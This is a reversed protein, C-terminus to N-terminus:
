RVPLGKIRECCNLPSSTWNYIYAPRIEQEQSCLTGNKVLNTYKTYFSRVKMKHTILYGNNCGHSLSEVDFRIDHKRTLQFPALWSAVTVDENAYLTLRHPFMMLLRVTQRSLVYGGGMAYPLYHPCQFWRHEAWKGALEPFAHGMFYGWYLTKPCRMDKLANAIGEIRVYSDDDVKVLYDFTLTHDAWQIGLLVKASLNWYSDKLDTFLLLDKFQKQESNLAQLTADDLESTGILFKTTATVIRRKYDHLWTGRIAARRLSSTPASLVLIVLHLLQDTCWPYLSMVQISNNHHQLPKIRHQLGVELPQQHPQGPPSYLHPAPAVQLLIEVDENVQWYEVEAIFVM